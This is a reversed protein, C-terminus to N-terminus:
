RALTERCTALRPDDPLRAVLNQLRVRAAAEGNRDDGQHSAQLAQAYSTCADAMADRSELLAGLNNLVMGAGARDRLFRYDALAADFSAKAPDRRDLALQAGGLNNLIAARASAPLRPTRSAREQLELALAKEGLGSHVLGLGTLASSEGLADGV